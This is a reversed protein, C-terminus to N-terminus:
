KKTGVDDEPFDDPSPMGAALSPGDDAIPPLEQPTQKETQATSETPPEEARSKIKYHVQNLQVDEGVPYAM